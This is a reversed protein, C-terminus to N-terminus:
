TPVKRNPWRRMAGAVEYAAEIKEFAVGLRKALFAWHEVVEPALADQARLVFLPEDDAAKDYCPVGDQKTQQRRPM